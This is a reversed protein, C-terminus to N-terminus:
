ETLYYHRNNFEKLADEFDGKTHENAYRQVQDHTVTNLAGPSLKNLTSVIEPPMLPGVMKGRDYTGARYQDVLSNVVGSGGLLKARAAINAHLQAPPLNEDFDAEVKARDKEAGAGQIYANTLEPGVAHIIAKFTQAPTAGINAGLTNAIANLKKFDGNTMAQVADDAVGMHAIATRVSRMKDGQKGTAFGKETTQFVPYHEEIFKPNLERVRKNLAERDSAQLRSSAQSFPIQYNAVMRSTNEMMAPSTPIKGTKRLTETEEPTLGLQVALQKRGDDTQLLKGVTMQGQKEVAGRNALLEAEQRPYVTTGAKLVTGPSLTTGDAQPMPSTLTIDRQLTLSEPLDTYRAKKGAGPSIGYRDGITQAAGEFLQTTPATPGPHQQEVLKEAQAVKEPPYKEPNLLIEQPSTPFQTKQDFQAQAKDREATLKQLSERQRGIEGAALQAVQRDYENNKDQLEVGTKLADIYNKRAEQQQREVENATGLGAEGLAVSFYPSHSALLGMGMRFLVNSLNPHMSAQVQEQLQAVAEELRSYDPRKGLLTEISAKTKAVNDETFEGQGKMGAIQNNLATVEPSVPPTWPQQQPQPQQAWPQITAGASPETAAAQTTPQTPLQRFPTTPLTTPLPSPIMPLPAPQPPNQVDAMVKNVYKDTGKATTNGSYDALAARMDGHHRQLLEQLYDGAADISAEPNFPDTLGLHKQTQPTIQMIGQAHEGTSPIRPGVAAPNFNSETRAIGRLVDPNVGVREGTNQFMQEIPAPPMNLALLEDLRDNVDGGDDYHVKGGAALEQQGGTMEPASGPMAGTRWANRRLARQEMDQLINPDIGTRASADLFPQQRVLPPLAHLKMQNIRPDTEGGGQFRVPGGGAMGPLLYGARWMAARQMAELYDSAGPDYTDEVLGGEQMRPPKFNQPAQAGPMPGGIGPAPAKMPPPTQGPPGPPQTQPAGLSALTARMVDDSVTSGPMRAPGAGARLQQRRQLEAAVLYPPAAGSPMQMERLLAQDPLQKLDNAIANLDM